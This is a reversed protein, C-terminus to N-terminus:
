FTNPLSARFNKHDRQPLWPDKLGNLDFGRGDAHDAPFQEPTTEGRIERILASSDKAMSHVYAEFPTQSRLRSLKQSEQGKQPWFELDVTNAIERDKREPTIGIFANEISIPRSHNWRM